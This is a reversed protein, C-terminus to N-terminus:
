IETDMKTVARYLAYAKRAEIRSTDVQYLPLYGEGVSEVVRGAGGQELKRLITAERADRKEPSMSGVRALHPVRGGSVGRSLIRAMDSSGEISWACPVSGMRVGYIHQSGFETAGLSPGAAGIFERHEGRM